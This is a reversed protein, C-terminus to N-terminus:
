TRRGNKHGNQSYEEDARSRLHSRFEQPSMGETQHFARLFSKFSVFGALVAVKYVPLDTELLFQEACKLRCRQIECFISHGVGRRFRLELTRRSVNVGQVVDSVGIGDGVHDWIYRLARAVVPDEHAFTDSSRRVVIQTPEVLVRRTGKPWRSMMQALIEAAEYGAKEFGLAISSLPPKSLSCILEDNDVGVVSVDDPVALGATTCVQLIERGCSDNCALIGVPKPLSNLWQQLAPEAKEWLEIWNRQQMWDTLWIRHISCHFAQRNLLRAFAEERSASWFCGTFGCFGFSRLGRDIFHEAAFRAIAESDSRIEAVREGRRSSESHSLSSAVFPLGTERIRREMGPSRIQAIIGRGRWSTPNPVSKEMHGLSVYLTWGRHLRSYRSIGCLLSRGPQYSTDLLLAVHRLGKM